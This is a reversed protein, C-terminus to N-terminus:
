RDVHGVPDFGLDLPEGGTKAIPDDLTVGHPWELEFRVVGVVDATVDATADHIQFLREGARHRAAVRVPRPDLADVQTGRRRRGPTAHVPYWMRMMIVGENLRLRAVNAM